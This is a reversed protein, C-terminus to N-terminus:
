IDLQLDVSLECIGGDNLLHCNDDQDGAYFFCNKCKTQYKEEFIAEPSNEYSEM